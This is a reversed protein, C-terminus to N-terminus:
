LYKVAAAALCAIVFVVSGIRLCHDAFSKKRKSVAFYVFGCSHCSPDAMSPAITRCNPCQKAM